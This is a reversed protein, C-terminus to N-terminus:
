QLLKDIEKINNIIREKCNNLLKINRCKTTKIINIYTLYSLATDFTLYEKKRTNTDIDQMICIIKEADYNVGEIINNIITRYDKPIFTEM